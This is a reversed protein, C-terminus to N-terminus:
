KCHSFLNTNVHMEATYLETVRQITQHFSQESCNRMVNATDLWVVRLQWERIGRGTDDHQVTDTVNQAQEPL